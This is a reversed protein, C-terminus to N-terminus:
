LHGTHECVLIQLLVIQFQQASHKRTGEALTHAQLIPHERVLSM